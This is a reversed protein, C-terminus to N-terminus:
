ILRMQNSCLVKYNEMQNMSFLSGKNVFHEIIRLSKGIHAFSKTGNMISVCVQLHVATYVCMCVSM